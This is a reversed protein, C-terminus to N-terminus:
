AVRLATSTTRAASPGRDFFAGRTAGFIGRFVFRSRSAFRSM